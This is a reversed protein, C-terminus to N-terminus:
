GVVFSFYLSSSVIKLVYITKTSETTQELWDPHLIIIATIAYFIGFITPPLASEILINTVATYIGVDRGPLANLLQKNARTLRFAITSTTLVNVLVASLTWPGLLANIFLESGSYARV